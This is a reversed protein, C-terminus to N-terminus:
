GTMRAPSAVVANRVSCGGSDRVGRVGAGQFAGQRRLRGAGGGVGGGSREEASWRAAWSCDVTVAGIGPVTMLTSTASPSLTTALCASTTRSAIFISVGSAEGYSAVTRATCTRSPSRTAPPVRRTSSASYIGERAHSLAHLVEERGERRTRIRRLRCPHGIGVDELDFARARPLHVDVVAGDGDGFTAPVGVDGDGGGLLGELLDDGAVLVRRAGVHGALQLDLAVHARRHLELLEELDETPTTTSMASGSCVRASAIANTTACGSSPSSGRSADMASLPSSRPSRPSAIRSWRSPSRTMAAPTPFISSTSRSARRVAPAAAAASSDRTPPVSTQTSSSRSGTGSASWAAARTSPVIM